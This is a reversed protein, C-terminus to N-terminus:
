RTGRESRAWRDRFSEPPPVPLDRAATWASLPPPAASIRVPRGLLRSLLRSVGSIPRHMLALARLALPWRRRGRMVWGVTRMAAAEPSPLRHDAAKADVVKSRLHVLMSPIDIAVPCVDYCAGCLSSAFPLTSNYAVGTLQPSLV